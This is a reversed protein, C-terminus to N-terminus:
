DAHFSINLEHYCKIILDVWADSAQEVMDLVKEFGTLGGYYPDPVELGTGLSALIYDLKHQNDKTCLRQLLLMNQRDAVLVLDFRAFDGGVVQRARQSSLDYGRSLAAKCTRADPAEGVHYGHTGASDVVVAEALGAETLKNRLVGEATPSRCINGMCCLLLAVPRQEEHAQRVASLLKKYINTM